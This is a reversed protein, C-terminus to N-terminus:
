QWRDRLYRIQEREQFSGGGEHGNYPWVRIEKAGAYHNYAAFVTSPPCVEDMLATSFLAHARARAAHNVADFYALTEFVADVQDRHVRCYASIEAYPAADTIQVARRYHCLFPVDPMTVAIDPLLGAVALALGGGQSRGTVALRRGDVAPHSCAAEVARVADVTLRRFYYDDRELIGATMFGPYHPASRGSDATDGHRWVSGQGRSDMVLHAFGASSWLLWDTPFGRGGGYGVYQVVCPLVQQRQVPLLLWARVPQGDFGAFTVDFSAVTQLGFDVPRFVPALPYRRSETLTLQWFADFDGPEEREPRYTALEDLPMDILM